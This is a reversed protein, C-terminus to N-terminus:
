LILQIDLNSVGDIKLELLRQYIPYEKLGADCVQEFDYLLYWTDSEFDEWSDEKLKSYNCLIASCVEPNLLSVGSYVVNGESDITVEDNLPIISKSRTIKNFVIPRRYANKIIYQDKRLEILTSKIIYADRGTATKLKNEWIQIAERM